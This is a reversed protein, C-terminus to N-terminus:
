HYINSAICKIQLAQATGSEKVVYDGNFKKKKEFIPITVFSIQSKDIGAMSFLLAMDMQKQQLGAFIRGGDNEYLYNKRNLYANIDMFGYQPCQGQNSETSCLLTVMSGPTYNNFRLEYFNANMKDTMLSVILLKKLQEKDWSKPWVVNLKYCWQFSGSGLYELSEPLIVNKLNMCSNFALEGISRVTSPINITQLSACGAFANKRIDIVKNPIKVSTIASCGEFASEGIIIVNDPIVVETSEGLYKKLTGGVIEFDQHTSINVSGVNINVVNKIYNNVIADKIVFPKGCHDCIAASDDSNIKLNAGCSPCELPIIPM